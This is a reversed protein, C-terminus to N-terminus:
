RYSLYFIRTTSPASLQQHQCPVSDEPSVVFSQWVEEDDSGGFDTIGDDIMTMVM